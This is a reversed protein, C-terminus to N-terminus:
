GSVARSPRNVKKLYNRASFCLFSISFLSWFDQFLNEEDELFIASLLSCKNPGIICNQFICIKGLEFLIALFNRFLIKNSKKM